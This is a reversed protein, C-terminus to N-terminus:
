KEPLHDKVLKLLSAVYFTHILGSKQDTTKFSALEAEAQEVEQQFFPIVIHANDKLIETATLPILRGTGFAGPELPTSTELTHTPLYGLTSEIKEIARIGIGKLSYRKSLEEVSVELGTFGAARIRQDLSEFAEEFKTLDVKQNIQGNHAGIEKLLQAEERKNEEEFIGNPKGLLFGPKFWGGSEDDREDRSANIPNTFSFIVGGTILISVIKLTHARM